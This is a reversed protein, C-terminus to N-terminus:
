QLDLWATGKQFVEDYRPPPEPLVMRSNRNRYRLRKRTRIRLESLLRERQLKTKM